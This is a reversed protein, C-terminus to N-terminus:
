HTKANLYVGKNKVLYSVGSILTLTVTVLMLIFVSNRYVAETEANWFQFVKIGAERFILFLLVAFVSFVQSATKHRGGEDAPIVKGKTLAFVRLGTIAAERFIIIVVMWAPVLEMEVFALFAALILIKDAIPDMLKGFDTVQNDRKAIYGDLLDTVSALCFIALALSKGWVGKTFLFFMFIPTLIIRSITLKNALTM